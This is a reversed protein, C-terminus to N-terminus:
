GREEPEFNQLMRYSNSVTTELQEKPATPIDVQGSMKDLNRNFDEWSTDDWPPLKHIFYDWRQREQRKKQLMELFDSLQGSPIIEDLLVFPCAYETFLMDM